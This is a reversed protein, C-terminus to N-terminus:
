TNLSDGSACDVRGAALASPWFSLSSGFFTVGAEVRWPERQRPQRGEARGCCRAAGAAACAGDTGSVCASRSTPSQCTHTPRKPVQLPIICSGITEWKNADSHDVAGAHGTERRRMAGRFRLPYCVM